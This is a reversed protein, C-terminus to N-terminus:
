QEIQEIIKVLEEVSMNRGLKISEERVIKTILSLKDPEIYISNMELFCKIASRGSHKGVVFQRKRGVEQPSISEFSKEAKLLGDVHIGSEHEFMSRGIIAKNYPIPRNSAKSVYDCLEFLKTTDISLSQKFHYKLCMVVEELPAIGARDGLGNVTVQVNEAGAYVGALTNATALGFDNHMHLQIPLDVESVLRKVRYYTTLPNLVGVTDSFRIRDAGASKAAKAYEVLFNLDARGADEASVSVWLNNSKAYAILEQMTEIVWERSKSFKQTIHYDSSPLGIHISNLGCHLSANIDEKRARNWGIIKAPFNQRLIAKIANAETGGMIPTGVELSHIGMEVLLQAIQVKQEVSFAVGPAQEGERLTTDEIITM